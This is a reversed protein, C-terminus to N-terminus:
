ASVEFTSMLMIAALTHDSKAKIEDGLDIKLQRIAEGCLCFAESKWEPSTGANALAALGAAAVVTALVGHPRERQLLDLLFSCVARKPDPRGQCDKGLVYRSIFFATARDGLPPSVDRSRHSGPNSSESGNGLMSSPSKKLVGAGHHRFRIDEESLVGPCTWRAKICNNCAPM